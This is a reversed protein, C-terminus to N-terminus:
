RLLSVQDKAAKYLPQGVKCAYAATFQPHNVVTGNVRWKAPAYTSTPLAAVLASDRDSRAMVSAWSAFFAKRAAPDVAGSAALADYAIELGVLDASNQARTREGNVKNNGAVTYASYQAVLPLSQEAWAKEASPSLHMGTSIQQAMLAGLAGYDAADSVGSFVPAQLAAATVILRNEGPEFGIVPSAQSVPWAWIPRALRAIERARQWRRLALVNAAYNSRQFQLSTFAVPTIPKGIGLQMADLQKNAAAKEEASLWTARDVARKGAARIAAGIADAKRDQATSLASESYAASLLDPAQERVLLAVRESQSLNRKALTDDVFSVYIRRYDRTLLSAVSHLLQARLYSKWQTIPAKTVLDNAAKFFEPQEVFVEPPSVGAASMFSGLGLQSYTKAAAAPSQAQVSKSGSAQALLQEFQLAEGSTAVLQDNPTGSFKLLDALYARYIGGIRQLEPDASGYFAPDHLTLGNPVFTARPQGSQPDRRVDLDYLVPIGAAQLANIAVAIDKPKRIADVRAILPALVSQAAADMAAEDQGSAVLDALLNSAPGAVTARPSTVLLQTRKAADARLEDWRSISDAGAPVPHSRLWTANINGYFDACAAPASPAPSAAPKKAADASGAVLTLALMALLPRLAPTM